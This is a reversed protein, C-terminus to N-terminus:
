AWHSDQKHTGARAYAHGEVAMVRQIQQEARSAAIARLQAKEPNSLTKQGAVLEETEKAVMMPLLTALTGARALRIGWAENESSVIPTATSLVLTLMFM